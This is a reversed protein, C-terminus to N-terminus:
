NLEIGWLDQLLSFEVTANPMEVSGNEERVLSATAKYRIKHLNERETNEYVVRCNSICDLGVMVHAHRM